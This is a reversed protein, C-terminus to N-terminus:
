KQKQKKFGILDEKRVYQVGNKYRGVQGDVIGIDDSAKQRKKGKNPNVVRYGLRRELDRKETEEQINKKRMQQFEKYNYYTNKPPKAGLNILLSTMAEDKQSGQLGKIGFKRVEYRAQLMDFDPNDDAENKSPLSEEQEKQNLKKKKRPNSFVIIEPGMDSKGEGSSKQNERTEICQRKFEDLGLDVSLDSLHKQVGSLPSVIGQSFKISDESVDSKNKKKRKKRKNTAKETNPQAQPFIKSGHLDNESETETKNGVKKKRQRKENDESELLSDGYEELKKLVVSQLSSRKTTKNM